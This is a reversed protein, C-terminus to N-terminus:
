ELSNKDRELHHANEEIVKLNLAGSSLEDKLKSNEELALVLRVQFDWSRNEFTQYLNLVYQYQLIIEEQEAHSKSLDKQTENEGKKLHRAGIWVQGYQMTVIKDYKHKYKPSM